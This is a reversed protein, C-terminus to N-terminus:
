STDVPSDLTVIEVRHKFHAMKEKKKAYLKSLSYPIDFRYFITNCTKCYLAFKSM